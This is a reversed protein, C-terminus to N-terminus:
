SQHHTQLSRQCTRAMANVFESNMDKIIATDGQVSATTADGKEVEETDTVTNRDKETGTTDTVFDGQAGIDRAADQLCDLLGQEIEGVLGDHLTTTVVYNKAAPMEGITKLVHGEAALEEYCDEETELKSSNVERRLSMISLPGAM